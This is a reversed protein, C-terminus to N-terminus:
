LLKDKWIEMKRWMGLRLFIQRSQLRGSKKEQASSLSLSSITLCFKLQENTQHRLNKGGPTLSHSKDM